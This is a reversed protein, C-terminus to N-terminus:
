TNTTSLLLILSQSVVVLTSLANGITTSIVPVDEPVIEFTFGGSVISFFLVISNSRESEESENM